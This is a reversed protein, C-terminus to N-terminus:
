YKDQVCGGPSYEEKGPSAELPLHIVPTGDSKSEIFGYPIGDPNELLIYGAEECINKLREITENLERMAIEKGISPTQHKEAIKTIKERMYLTFDPDQPVNTDIEEDERLVSDRYRLGSCIEAIREPKKELYYSLVAVALLHRFARGTVTIEDPTYKVRSGACGTLGGAYASWLLSLSLAANKLAKGYKGGRKERGFFFSYLGM